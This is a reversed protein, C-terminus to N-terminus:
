FETWVKNKLLFFGFFFDTVLEQPHLFGALVFTFTVFLLSLTSPALWGDDVVQIMMGILVAMM